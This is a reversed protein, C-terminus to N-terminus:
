VGGNKDNIVSDDPMVNKKIKNMILRLADFENRTIM